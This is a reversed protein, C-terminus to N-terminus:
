DALEALHDAWWDMLDPHNRLFAEVEAGSAQGEEVLDDLADMLDDMAEEFAEGIAEEGSRTRPLAIHVREGTESM